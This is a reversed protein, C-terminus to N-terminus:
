AIRIIYVDAGKIRRAVKQGRKGYFANAACHLRNAYAKTPRGDKLNEGSATFQNAENVELETFNYKAPRGRGSKSLLEEIENM